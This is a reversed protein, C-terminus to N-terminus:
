RSKMITAELPVEQIRFSGSFVLTFARSAMDFSKSVGKVTVNISGIIYGDTIEDITVSGDCSNGDLREPKDGLLFRFFRANKASSVAYRGPALTPMEVAFWTESAQSRGEEAKDFASIVLVDNTGSKLQIVRIAQLPEEINTELDIAAERVFYREEFQFVRSPPPPTLTEKTVEPPVPKVEEMPASCSAILLTLLFIHPVATTHFFRGDSITTRDSEKKTSTKMTNEKFVDFMENRAM